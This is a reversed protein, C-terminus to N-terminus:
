LSSGQCSKNGFLKLIEDQNVMNLLKCVFIEQQKTM